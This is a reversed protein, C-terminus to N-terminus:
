SAAEVEEDPELRDLEALAAVLDPELRNRERQFDEAGIRGLRYDLEVMRLEEGLADRRERLRSLRQAVHVDLAPAPVVSRALRLVLWVAGLTLLLVAAGFFVDVGRM